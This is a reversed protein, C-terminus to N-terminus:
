GLLLYWNQAGEYRVDDSEFVQVEYGATDNFGPAFATAERGGPVDHLPTDPRGPGPGGDGDHDQGPPTTTITVTRPAYSRELKRLQAATHTTRALQLSIARAVSVTLDDARQAVANRLLFVLPIAFALVVLATMGVVLLLIRRRM